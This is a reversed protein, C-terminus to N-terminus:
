GDFAHYSVGNHVVHIKGEPVQYIRRLEDALFHSM